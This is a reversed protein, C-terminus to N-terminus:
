LHHQQKNTLLALSYPCLSSAPFCFPCLTFFFEPAQKRTPATLLRREGPPPFGASLPCTQARAPFSSLFNPPSSPPSPARPGSAQPKQQSPQDRESGLPFEGCLSILREEALGSEPCLARFEGFLQGGAPRCNPNEMVPIRYTVGQM